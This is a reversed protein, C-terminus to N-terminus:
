PALHAVLADNVVQVDEHQVWHTAEQRWLLGADDCL